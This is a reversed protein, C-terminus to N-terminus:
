IEASSFGRMAIQKVNTPGMMLEAEVEVASM